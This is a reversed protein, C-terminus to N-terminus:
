ELVMMSQSGKFTSYLELKCQTIREAVVPESKGVSM